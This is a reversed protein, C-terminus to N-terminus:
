QRAEMAEHQTAFPPLQGSFDQNESFKGFKRRLWRTFSFKAHAICMLENLIIEM